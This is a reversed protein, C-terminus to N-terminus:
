GGCITGSQRLCDDTGGVGAQVPGKKYHYGAKAKRGQILTPVPAGGYFDAFEIIIEEGNHGASSMKVKGKMSGEGKCKGEVSKVDTCNNVTRFDTNVVCQYTFKFQGIEGEGEWNMAIRGSDPTLFEITGKSNSEAIFPSELGFQGLDGEFHIAFVERTDFRGENLEREYKGDSPGALVVTIDGTSIQGLLLPDVDQRYSRISAWGATEDIALVIDTNRIDATQPGGLEPPFNVTFYNPRDPASKAFLIQTEAAALNAIGLVILLSLTRWTKM